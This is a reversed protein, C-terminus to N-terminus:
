RDQRLLHLAQDLKGVEDPCVHRMSIRMLDPRAEPVAVRRVLEAVTRDCDERTLEELLELDPDADPEAAVLDARWADHDISGEDDPGCSTTTMTAAAAACGIGLSLRLGQRDTGGRDPTRRARALAQGVGTKSALWMQPM